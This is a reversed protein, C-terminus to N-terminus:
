IGWYSFQLTQVYVGAPDYKEQGSILLAEGIMAEYCAQGAAVTDAYKDSVCIVTITSQSRALGDKTNQNAFTRSIIVFPTPTDEPAVVAFLNTGIIATLATSAALLDYIIQGTKIM